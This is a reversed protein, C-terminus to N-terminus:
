NNDQHSVGILIGKGSRLHLWRTRDALTGKDTDDTTSQQSTGRGRVPHQEVFGPVPEQGSSALAFARVPTFGREERGNASVKLNLNKVSRTPANDPAAAQGPAALWLAAALM